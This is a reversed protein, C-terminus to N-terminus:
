TCLTRLDPTVRQYPSKVGMCAAEEKPPNRWTEFGSQRLVEDMYTFDIPETSDM